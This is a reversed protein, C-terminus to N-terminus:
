FTGFRVTADPVVFILLATYGRYFGFFGYKGYIHKFLNVLGM